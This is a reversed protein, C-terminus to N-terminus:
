ETDPQNWFDAIAQMRKAYFGIWTHLGPHPDDLLAKLGNVQERLDDLNPTQSTEREDM